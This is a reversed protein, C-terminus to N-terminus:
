YLAVRQSGGGCAFQQINGTGFFLTCLQSRWYGLLDGLTQIGTREGGGGFFEIDRKDVAKLGAYAGFAVIQDAASRCRALYYRVLTEGSEVCVPYLGSHALTLGVSITNGSVARVSAMESLDDVDVVVRAFREFGVASDLTLSVVTPTTGLATATVATSSTAVAASDLNPLAVQEFYRSVGIYPEAGITLVNFGLEFKIRAIEAALLAV